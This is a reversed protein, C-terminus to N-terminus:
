SIVRRIAIVSCGQEGVGVHCMVGVLWWLVVCQSYKVHNHLNDINTSINFISPLERLVWREHPQPEAPEPPAAGLVGLGARAWQARGVAHKREEECRVPEGSM